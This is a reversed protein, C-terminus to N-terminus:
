WWLSSKVSKGENRTLKECREHMEAIRSRIENMSIENWIKLIIQKLQQKNSWKKQRLRQKLVNWVAEILNLNSSQSSHYLLIIWNVAKFDRVVNDESRTEHSNDNDEQLILNQNMMWAENYSQLYVSLLRQVYCTQTMNNDKSKIEVDYFLFAEWQRMRDHYEEKSENKKKRSKRSKSIKVNLFDNEDNYFQLSDKHFWFVFAAIHFVIEKLDSVLRATPNPKPCFNLGSGRIPCIRCSLGRTPSGSGSSVSGTVYLNRPNPCFSKDLGSLQVFIRTWGSSQIPDPQGLQEFGLGATVSDSVKKLNQSEYRTSTERLIYQSSVDTSNVHVKNTWHVRSWFKKMTKHLHENEYQIRLQKIKKVLSKSLSWKINALMADRSWLEDCRVLIFRCILIILKINM